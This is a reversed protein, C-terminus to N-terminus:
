ILDLRYSLALSVCYNNRSYASYLTAVIAAKASIAIAPFLADGDNSISNGLQASMPIQGSVYM